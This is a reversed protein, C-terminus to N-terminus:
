DLKSNLCGSSKCERIRDQLFNTREITYEINCQIYTTGGDQCANDRENIWNMESAKLKSKGQKNLMSMLKKYNANLEKDAEAHVKNMCYNRDYDTLKPNDCKSSSKAYPLSICLLTAIVIKKM